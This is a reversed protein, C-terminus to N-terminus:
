SVITIVAAPRNSFPVKTPPICSENNCAGYTFSGSVKYKKGTLKFKQVFTVKQEYYRVDVGFLDDFHSLETGRGKLGGIFEAGEKENLKITASTPGGAIHTSYVHWGEEITLHVLVEAENTTTQKWEVSSTVPNMIQAALFLPMWLTAIFLLFRSKM